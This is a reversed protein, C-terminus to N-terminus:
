KPKQGSSALMYLIWLRLLFYTKTTISNSRIIANELIGMNKETDTILISTIPTVGKFFFFEM